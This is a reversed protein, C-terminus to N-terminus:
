PRKQHAERCDADEVPQDSAYQTRVREPEGDRRLLCVPQRRKPNAGFHDDVCAPRDPHERVADLAVLEICARDVHDTPVARLGDACTAEHQRRFRERGLHCTSDDDLRGAPHHVDPPHRHKWGLAADFVRHEHRQQAPEIELHPVATVLHGAPHHRTARPPQEL